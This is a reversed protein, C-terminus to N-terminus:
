HKKKAKIIGAATGAAAAAAAAAGVAARAKWLEDADRFYRLLSVPGKGCIDFYTYYRTDYGGDEYLTFTRLGRESSGYCRFSCGATQIFDIGDVNGEFRNVHDHGFVVARIDGARKMADFQGVEETCVSPFEGMVGSVGDKLRYRKGNELVSGREEDCEEILELTERLPIHQFMVSPVPKGGNQEKLEASKKEYWEVTEPLVYHFSKKQEKDFRASDIMWLNFAIRSEDESYIPLNYTGRYAEEGDLGVCCSYSRYIENQEEKTVKNMDDHNGYIAAFPIHRKEIPELLYALAKKMERLEDEKTKVTLRSLVPVADTFHNGLTNDGTILILDPKFRDYARELMVFMAKRIIQLDQPDSVQLINFRGNKFKLKM